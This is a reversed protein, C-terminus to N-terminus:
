KQSADDQAKPLRWTLRSDSCIAITGNPLAKVSGAACSGQPVEYLKAVCDEHHEGKSPNEFARLQEPSYSPLMWRYGFSYGGALGLGVCLIALFVKKM